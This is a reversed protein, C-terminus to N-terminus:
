EKKNVEELLEFLSLEENIYIEDLQEEKIREKLNSFIRERESTRAGKDKDKFITNLEITFAKLEEKSAKNFFPSLWQIERKMEKDDM